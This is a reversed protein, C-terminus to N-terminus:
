AACDPVETAAACTEPATARSFARLVASVGSSMSCVRVPLTRGNPLSFTQSVSADLDQPAPMRLRASIAAATLGSMSVAMARLPVFWPVSVEPVVAKSTVLAKVSSAQTLGVDHPVPFAAPMTMSRQADYANSHSLPFQSAAEPEFQSQTFLPILARM